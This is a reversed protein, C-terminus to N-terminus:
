LQVFENTVIACQLKVSFVTSLTLCSVNYYGLLNTTYTNHLMNAKKLATTIFKIKFFNGEIGTVLIFSFMIQQQTVTLSNTTNSV